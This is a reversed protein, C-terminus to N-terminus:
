NELAGAGLPKSLCRDLTVSGLQELEKQVRRVERYHQVAESAVLRLEEGRNQLGLELMKEELRDLEDLREALERAISLSLPLLRRTKQWDERTTKIM